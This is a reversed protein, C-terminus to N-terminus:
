FALFQEVILSNKSIKFSSFFKQRPCVPDDIIGFADNTSSVRPNRIIMQFTVKALNAVTEVATIPFFIKEISQNPRKYGDLGDCVLFYNTLGERGSHTKAALDIPM